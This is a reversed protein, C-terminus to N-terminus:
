IINRANCAFSTTDLPCLHFFGVRELQIKQNRPHSKENGKRFCLRAAETRCARRTASRTKTVRKCFPRVADKKGREGVGQAAAFRSGSPITFFGLERSCCFLLGGSHTTKEKTTYYGTRQYLSGSPDM